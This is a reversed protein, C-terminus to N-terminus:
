NRDVDYHHWRPIYSLYIDPANALNHVPTGGGQEVVVVLKSTDLPVKWNEFSAQSTLNPTDTVTEGLLMHRNGEWRPYFWYKLISGVSPVRTISLLHDTPMLVFGDFFLTQAVGVPREAFVRLSYQTIDQPVSSGFHPVPTPPLQIVGLPVARWGTDEFLIENNAAFQGSQSWGHRLQVGFKAGSASAKMRGIVLYRGIYHDEYTSTAWQYLEIHAREVLAEQTAFTIEACNPTGGSAGTETVFSTDDGDDSGDEIEIVPEYYNIGRRAKRIGLWARGVGTHNLYGYDIRAHRTGKTNYIAGGGGWTSVNSSLDTAPTIAEWYPMRHLRLQWKSIQDGNEDLWPNTGVFPIQRLEADIVVTHNEDDGQQLCLTIPDNNLMDSHYEAAKREFDRLQRTMDKIVDDSGRIALPLTEWLPKHAGAHGGTPSNPVWGDEIMIPGGYLNLYDGTASQLWLNASM